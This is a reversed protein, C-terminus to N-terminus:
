IRILFWLAGVRSSPQSLFCGESSGLDQVGQAWAALRLDRFIFVLTHFVWGVADRDSDRDSVVSTEKVTQTDHSKRLQQEKVVSQLRGTARETTWCTSM